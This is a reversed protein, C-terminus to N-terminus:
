LWKSYTCKIGIKCFIINNIPFLHKKLTAHKGDSYVIPPWIHEGGM